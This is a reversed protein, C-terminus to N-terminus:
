CVRVMGVQQIGAIRLTPAAGRAARAADAKPLTPVADRCLRCRGQTPVARRATREGLSMRVEGLEVAPESLGARGLAGRIIM